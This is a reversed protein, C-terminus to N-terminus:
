IVFGKHIEDPIKRDLYRYGLWLAVLLDLVLCCLVFARYRKKIEM